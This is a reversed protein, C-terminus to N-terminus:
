TLGCSHAHRGPRMAVLNALWQEHDAVERERIPREAAHVVKPAAVEGLFFWAIPVDLAAM